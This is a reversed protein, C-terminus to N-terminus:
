FFIVLGFGQISKKAIIQRFHLMKLNRKIKFISKLILSNSTCEVDFHIQHYMVKGIFQVM